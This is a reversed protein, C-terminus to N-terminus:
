YDGRMQVLVEKTNPDSIKVASSFAFGGKEDVPAQKQETIIQEKQKDLNENM